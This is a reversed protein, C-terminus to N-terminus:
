LGFKPRRRSDLLWLNRTAEPTGSVYYAAKGYIGYPDWRLEKKGDANRTYVEFHLHPLDWSPLHAYDRVVDPREEYDM